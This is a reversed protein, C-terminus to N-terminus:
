NFLRSCVSDVAGKEGKSVYLSVISADNISDSPLSYWYNGNSTEKVVIAYSEKDLYLEVLGSSCVLELKETDITNYKKDTNKTSIIKEDSAKYTYTKSISSSCASCTFLMVLSILACLIKKYFAM